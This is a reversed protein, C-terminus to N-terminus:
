LVLKTRECRSKSILGTWFSRICRQAKMILSILSSHPLLLEYNIAYGLTQVKISQSKIVRANLSFLIHRTVRVLQEKDSPIFCKLEEVWDSVM